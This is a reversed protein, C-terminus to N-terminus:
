QYDFQRLLAMMGQEAAQPSAAPWLTQQAVSMRLFARADEFFQRAEEESCDAFSLSKPVPRLEGDPTPIWDVFGAGVKLWATFVRYDEFRDQAKFVTSLVKFVLRHFRSNRQRKVTLTFYSGAPADAFARWWGRWAKMDRETVGDIAQFLFRRVIEADTEPLRDDTRKLLVIEV